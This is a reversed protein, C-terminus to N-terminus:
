TQKLGNLRLTRLMATHAAQLAHMPAVTIEGVQGGYEQILFYGEKVNLWGARLTITNGRRKVDSDLSQNMKFTWNRNAKGPRLSSPTNDITDHAAQEGDIAATLAVDQIDKLMHAEYGRIAGLLGDTVQKHGVLGGRIM